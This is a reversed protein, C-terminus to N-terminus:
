CLSAIIFISFKRYFTADCWSNEISITYMNASVLLIRPCYTIENITERSYSLTNTLHEPWLLPYNPQAVTLCIFSHCNAHLCDLILADLNFCLVFHVLRYIRLTLPLTGRFSNSPSRRKCPRGSLSCCCQTLNKLLFLATFVVAVVQGNGRGIHM